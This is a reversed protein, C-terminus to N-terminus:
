LTRVKFHFMWFIIPLESHWFKTYVDKPKKKQRETMNKASHKVGKLSRRILRKQFIMM